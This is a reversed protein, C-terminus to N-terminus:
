RDIVLELCQIASPRPLREIAYVGYGVLGVILDYDEKWPSKQLYNILEEDIAENPDEDDPDLLRGQLHEVAWAIGTFGGYLSAPMPVSSLSDVAVDLLDMAKKQNEEKSHIQSLYTYFLSIGSTGGGITSSDIKTDATPSPIAAAISQVSDVAQEYIDGDLIPQWVSSQKNDM